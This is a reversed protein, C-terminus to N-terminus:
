PQTLLLSVSHIPGNNIKRKSAMEIDEATQAAKRTNRGIKYEQDIGGIRYGRGQSANEEWRNM